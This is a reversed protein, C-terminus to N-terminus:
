TLVDFELSKRPILIALGKSISNMKSQSFNKNKNSSNNTLSMCEKRHKGFDFENVERKILKETRSESRGFM